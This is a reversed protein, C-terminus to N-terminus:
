LPEPHLEDCLDQLFRMAALCQDADFRGVHCAEEDLELHEGMREYLHRRSILGKEWLPDMLKHLKYRLHRTEKNAPTGVPRGDRFAAHIARCDPCKYMLPRDIPKGSKLKMKAGCDACTLEWEPFQLNGVYVFEYLSM